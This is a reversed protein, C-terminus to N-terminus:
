PAGAKAAYLIGQAVALTDGNGNCDLVKIPLLTVGRAVGVMGQNNANAAIIGAVFTGHGLDDRVNGNLYSACGPSADKVFACGNVDDICGNGDDDVGNNPTEGPNIWARGQLDPHSLDLGTDLVAVLTSAKGKEIDWAEPAHEVKLYPAEKAYLPDAPVDSRTVSYVPEVYAIGPRSRFDTVARVIDVGAPPAIRLASLAEDRQVVAYGKSTAYAAVRDLDASRRARVVINGPARLSAQAFTTGGENSSAASGTATLRLTTALVVAAVATIAAVRALSRADRGFRDVTEGGMRAPSSHASCLMFDCHAPPDTLADHYLRRRLGGHRDADQCRMLRRLDRSAFDDLPGGGDDFLENFVRQVGARRPDRDLDALAAERQDADSVVTAADLGALQPQRELAV